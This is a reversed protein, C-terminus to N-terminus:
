QSNLFQSEQKETYGGSCTGRGEEQEINMHFVEQVKSERYLNEGQYAFLCFLSEQDEFDKEFVMDEGGNKCNLGCTVPDGFHPFPLWSYTGHDM